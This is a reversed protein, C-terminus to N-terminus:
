LLEENYNTPVYALRALKNGARRECFMMKKNNYKKKKEKKKRNLGTKTTTWNDDLQQMSYYLLIFYLLLHMFNILTFNFIYEGVSIYIPGEGYPM